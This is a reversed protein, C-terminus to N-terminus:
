KTWGKWVRMDFVGQMLLFPMCLIGVAVALMGAGYNLPPFVMDFVFISVSIGLLLEGYTTQFWEQWVM